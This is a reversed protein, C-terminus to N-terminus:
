RYDHAKGVLLGSRDEGVQLYVAKSCFQQPHHLPFQRLQMASRILSEVTGGPAVAYLLEGAIPVALPANADVIPLSDAAGEM